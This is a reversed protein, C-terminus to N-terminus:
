NISTKKLHLHRIRCRWLGFSVIQLTIMQLLALLVRDMLRRLLSSPVSVPVLDVVRLGRESVRSGLTIVFIVVFSHREEM